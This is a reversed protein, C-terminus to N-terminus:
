RLTKEQRNVFKKAKSYAIGGFMGLASAALGIPIAAPNFKKVITIDKMRPSIIKKSILLKRLKGTQPNISKRYKHLYKSTALTSSIIGGARAYQLDQKDLEALKVIM